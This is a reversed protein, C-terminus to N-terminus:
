LTLNEETDEMKEAIFRLVAMGTIGNMYSNKVDGGRENSRAEDLILKVRVDNQRQFLQYNIPPNYM